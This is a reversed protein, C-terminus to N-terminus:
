EIESVLAKYGDYLKLPVILKGTSDSVADTQLIKFMIYDFNRANTRRVNVAVLENPNGTAAAVNGATELERSNQTKIYSKNKYASLFKELERDFEAQVDGVMYKYYSTSKVIDSIVITDTLNYPKITNDGAIRPLQVEGRQEFYVRSTQPPDVIKGSNSLQATINDINVTGAGYEQAATKSYLVPVEKNIIVDGVNSIVYAKRVIDTTIAALINYYRISNLNVYKNNDSADKLDRILDEAKENSIKQREAQDLLCIQTKITTLWATTKIDNSIGTVIFGVFKSEYDRPLVQKDVTFIEGITLGSLGDLTLEISIPVISKYDTGGELEVLLTNLYGNMAVINAQHFAPFIKNSLVYINVYEILSLISQLKKNRAQQPTTGQEEETTTAEKLLRDRLGKNLYNYTSTQISSVNERDQAAIAIMTAQSQFIKSEIKHNRVITNRGAVNLKFKGSYVSDEPLETYHKDIIAVKNNSVFLDFDNVSGLSFSIKSLVKRLFSGIYVYGNNSVCDERYSSIITEINIYINGLIGLNTDGYLYDFRFSGDLSKNDFLDSVVKPYFGRNTETSSKFLIARPNKVLCTDPDISISHYSAQCLGNAIKSKDLPGTPVELEVFTQKKDSYINKFTNLIHIFYGLQIFYRSRIDAIKSTKADEKVFSPVYSNANKITVDRGDVAVVEYSNDSLNIDYRYISTDVYSSDQGLLADINKLLVNSQRVEKGKCYEDMLLEFQSKIDPKQTKPDANAEPIERTTDFSTDGTSIIEGITDNMRITDLVDGISLITTTCEYGGNPMLVYNFNRISGLVGDYNASYKARLTELTSYVVDQTINPDFCNITNFPTNEIKYSPTPSTVTKSNTSENPNQGAINTDLYMSWGWEVLVRYGPRLFLISLDELQKVDWAYFKVTAETLSGYAGLSRTVMDVIGPMPRIGYQGSSIDGGYSAGRGGIGSRLKATETQANFDYLTGGLLVYKKALANSEEYDVFSTMRIWPAKASVYKSFEVPREISGILDQRAKIQRVVFPKFTSKFISM